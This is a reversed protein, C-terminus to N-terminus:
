PALEQEAEPAPQDNVAAPGATVLAQAAEDASPLREPQDTLFRAATVFAGEATEQATFLVQQEGESAVTASELSKQGDFAAHMAVYADTGSIEPNQELTNKVTAGADALDRLLAEDAPQGRGTLADLRERLEVYRSVQETISLSTLNVRTPAPATSVPAASVAPESTPAPDVTQVTLPATSSGGGVAIVTVVFTAISAAAASAVSTFLGNWRQLLSERPGEAVAPRPARPTAALVRRRSREHFSRFSQHGAPVNLSARVVRTTQLLATLAPDEIPDLDLPSDNEISTLLESLRAAEIQEPELGLLDPRAPHKDSSRSTLRDDSM